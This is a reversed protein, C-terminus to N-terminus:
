VLAQVSESKLNRYELLSCINKFERKLIINRSHQNQIGKMFFLTIIYM